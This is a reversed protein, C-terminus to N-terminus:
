PTKKKNLKATDFNDSIYHIRFENDRTEMVNIYSDIGGVKTKYYHWKIVNPHSGDDYSWDLYVADKMVEPLKQLMSAILERFKHPKGLITKVDTRRLTINKFQEQNSEFVFGKNQDVHKKTWAKAQDLSLRHQQTVAQKLVDDPIGTYYPHQKPYIMGTKALNTRFMPNIPVDPISATKSHKKGAQQRAGCRCRWGNPPFYYDWFPDTIEATVGDLLQHDPRVRKDGVTEYTLWPNAEARSMFEQWRASMTASGIAHDYETLLWTKNYSGNISRVAEEFDAFSRTKGQDDKLALTIDRLQQYDKAVSFSWTDRTLRALMAADPTSYDVSLLTEGYGETVANYLKGQYTKVIASSDINYKREYVDKALSLVLQELENSDAATAV